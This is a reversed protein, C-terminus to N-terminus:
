LGVTDGNPLSYVKGYLQSAAIRGARIKMKTDGSQLAKEEEPTLDRSMEKEWEEPTLGREQPTHDCYVRGCIQCLGAM